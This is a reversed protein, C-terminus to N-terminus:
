ALKKRVDSIRLNFLALTMLFYSVLYIFDSIGGAVWTENYFRLLFTYDSLYQIFLAILIFLIKNKMVGGLLRHSLIYILLALAVYVAQGLPYGFDLFVVLPASWDLEYGQLFTYYSYGLIVLPVLIASIQNKVKRLSVRAGSAEGLLWVGYIYLPISGFYGLDGLSPYPVEVGLVLFYYTYVFQGFAQALLGFSFMMIGRGMKSKWGGYSKSIFFGIFFGILATVGYTDSFLDHYFTEHQGSFQLVLWWATYLFFVISAIRLRM